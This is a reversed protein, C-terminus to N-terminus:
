KGTSGFGGVGRKTQTLMDTVKIKVNPYPMIVMQGIRDGVSYPAYDMPHTIVYNEAEKAKRAATAYDNGNLELLFTNLAAQSAIQKLSDRNKFCYLIEGRYTVSDVIGVHNPLYADTKRNSSRAFLYAGYHLPTEISLGTRYIYVDNETDYEVGIATIDMGVDGDHAYTPIVARDDVKKILVELPENGVATSIQRLEREDM